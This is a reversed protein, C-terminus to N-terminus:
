IRDVWHTDVAVDLELFIKQNIAQELEKRAMQGIEKIKSGGKGIIVRKYRLQNTLIHATIVTCDQKEEVSSVQVTIAYPIEKDLVSFVKERIIEAIWFEKDINTLQEEPYLPEGEPLLAIVKAKLPEIHRAKLASLSFVAEFDNSWQLYDEEHPREKKPLDTKNLVLIKPTSLHRIMGYVLREEPGIERTPDVVYVIVDIGNLAEHIKKILKSTLLSRKEKLVGPTDVFIAQGEPTNLVGHITQRTMQARFSTAAIKTGVVTNLLTSKGVNSRGVLVAFGSRM